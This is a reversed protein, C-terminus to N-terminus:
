DREMCMKSPNSPGPIRTLSLREREEYLEVSVWGMSGLEGFMM